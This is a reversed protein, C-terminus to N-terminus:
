SEFGSRFISNSIPGVAPAHFGGSLVYSGGSITGASSQALTGTLVYSGGSAREGGGAIAQKSLTYSGGGPPPVAQGQGSPSVALLALALLAPRSM